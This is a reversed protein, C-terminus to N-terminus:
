LEEHKNINNLLLNDLLNARKVVKNQHKKSEFENNIYGNFVNFMNQFHNSPEINEIRNNGNM